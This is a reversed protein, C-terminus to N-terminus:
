LWSTRPTRHRSMWPRLAREASPSPSVLNRRVRLVNIANLLTMKESDYISKKAKAAKKKAKAALQKKSLM